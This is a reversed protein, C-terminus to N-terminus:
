GNCKRKPGGYAKSCKFAKTLKADNSLWPETSYQFIFYILFLFILTSFFSSLFELKKQSIDEPQLKNSAAM